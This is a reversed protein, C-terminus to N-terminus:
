SQLQYMLRLRDQIEALRQKDAATWYRRGRNPIIVRWGDKADPVVALSARVYSRGPDFLEDSILWSLDVSSIRQKAM